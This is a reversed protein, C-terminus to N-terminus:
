RSSSASSSSRYNGRRARASASRPTPPAPLQPQLRFPSPQPLSTSAAGLRRPLAALHRASLAEPQLPSLSQRAAPLQGPLLALADPWCRLVRQRGQQSEVSPLLLAEQPSALLEALRTPAAGERHWALRQAQVLIESERATAAQPQRARAPCHAREGDKRLARHICVSQRALMRDFIDPLNQLETQHEARRALIEAPQEQVLEARFHEPVLVDQHEEALLRLAM